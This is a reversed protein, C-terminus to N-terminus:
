ASTDARETANKTKTELIEPLVEFPRMQSVEKVKM